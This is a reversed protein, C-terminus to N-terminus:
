NFCTSSLVACLGAVAKGGATCGLGYLFGNLFAVAGFGPFYPGDPRVLYGIFDMVIGVFGGVFPGYMFGAVAIPLIYLQHPPNPFLRISLSRLAIGTRCAYLVWLSRLRRIEALAPRWIGPPHPNKPPRVITKKPM